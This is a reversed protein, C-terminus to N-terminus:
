LKKNRKIIEREELAKYDVKGVSTLPLSDLFVYEQPCMYEALEKDCRERIKAEIYKVDECTKDVVVYAKAVLINNKSTKVVCASKVETEKCIVEEIMQPFVKYIMGEKGLIIMRKIRGVLFLFGNRDIYGLDGTHIWKKGNGHEQFLNQMEEKNDKYGLMNSMCAMCVEGVEDYLCERKEEGNYIQLNNKVLPIGVSGRKNSNAYCTVATACVETMGYGKLVEAVSNHKQLFDNLALELKENMGDGGVAITKLCSLDINVLKKDELMPAVYSPIGAVHNPRYKKIYDKWDKAEFKPIIAVCLGLCLPMHMCILMGYVVYPIMINLFMQGREHEMCLNYQCAVANLANDSLLVSKPFGTTGGTHAMLGLENADKKLEINERIQKASNIFDKWEIVMKDPLFTRDLKRMKYQFGLKTAAPMWEALSYVIVKNSKAKKAASIVKQGFLDLTVVVESEADSFYKVLEEESALVNIYNPVAGIKNLAYFCLVSTVCSLSVVTCVDRQKVGQAVFAKAVVDINKFLEGYTIKRGFYNIAYYKLQEKNNEWLYEYLSCDPLEANIAEESYYKLWPKDISPYGTLKKENTNM